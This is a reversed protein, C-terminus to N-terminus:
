LYSTLVQLSHVSDTCTYCFTFMCYESYIHIHLHYQGDLRHPLYVVSHVHIYMYNYVEVYYNSSSDLFSQNKSLRPGQATANRAITLVSSYPGLSERFVMTELM